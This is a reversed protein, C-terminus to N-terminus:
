ECQEYESGADVASVFLRMRMTLDGRRWLDFLPEYSEPPVNFGGPDVIGTVGLGHLQRMMAATGSVQESASTPGMLALCAGFAGMGTIVGTPEGDRSREVVGGPPDGALADFGVVKLAESNLVASEYLAQVYVPHDGSVEDLEARTPVRNELFQSPHWGGVVRIWSGPETSATARRISALASAIDRVGTWHLEKNWTLGARVAHFHADILGPIVRRGGLDTILTDPGPSPLYRRRRGSPLWVVTISLSHRPSVMSM